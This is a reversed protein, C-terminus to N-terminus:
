QFSRCVNLMPADVSLYRSVLCVNQPMHTLMHCVGSEVFVTSSHGRIYKLKKYGICCKLPMYSCQTTAAPELRDLSTHIAPQCHTYQETLAISMQKLVTTPHKYQDLLKLFEMSICAHEMCKYFILDAVLTNNGDM